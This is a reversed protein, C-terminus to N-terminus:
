DYIPFLLGEIIRFSKSTLVLKTEETKALLNAFLSIQRLFTYSKSEGSITLQNVKCSSLAKILNDFGEGSYESSSYEVSRDKIQITLEM